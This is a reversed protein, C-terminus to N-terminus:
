TIMKKQRDKYGDVLSTVVAAHDVHAQVVLRPRQFSTEADLASLHRIVVTVGFSNWVVFASFDDDGHFLLLKASQVVNM